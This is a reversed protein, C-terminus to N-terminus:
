LCSSAGTAVVPLRRGDARLGLRIPTAAVFSGGSLLLACRRPAVQILLASFWRLLGFSSCACAYTSPWSRPQYRMVRFVHARLVRHFDFSVLQVGTDLISISRPGVVRSRRPCEFPPGVGPASQYPVRSRRSTVPEVPQRSEPLSHCDIRWPSVRQIAPRTDRHLYKVAGGDLHPAATPPLM